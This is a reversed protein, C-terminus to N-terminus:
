WSIELGYSAEGECSNLDQKTMKSEALNRENETPDLSNTGM